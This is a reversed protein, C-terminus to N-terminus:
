CDPLISLRPLNPSPACVSTRPVMHTAMAPPSNSIAPATVQPTILPPVSNNQVPVQTTPTNKTIQIDMHRTSAGNQNRARRHYM